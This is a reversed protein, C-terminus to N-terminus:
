RRASASRRTRRPRRATNPASRSLGGDFASQRTFTCAVAPYPSTVTANGAVDSQAAGPATHVAPPSRSVDPFENATGSRHFTSPTRAVGATPAASTSHVASVM